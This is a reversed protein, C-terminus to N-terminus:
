LVTGRRGRGICGRGALSLSRRAGPPAAPEAIRRPPEAGAANPGATNAIGGHSCCAWLIAPGARTATHGRRGAPGAPRCDRHPGATLHPRGAPPRPRQHPTACSETIRGHRQRRRPSRFNCTQPPAALAALKLRFWWTALNFAARGGPGAASHRAGTSTHSIGGPRTQLATLGLRTHRSSANWAPMRGHCGMM